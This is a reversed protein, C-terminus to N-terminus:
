QGRWLFDVFVQLVGNKKIVVFYTMKEFGLPFVCYKHYQYIIVYVFSLIFTMTSTM